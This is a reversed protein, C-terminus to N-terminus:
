LDLTSPAFIEEPRVIRPTLGQENLYQAITEVVVRAARLGYALPDNGLTRRVNDGLLGTEFYATLMAHGCRNAEDKAAAFASYLNLAVWPYREVLSRRVVVAHNIPYIGTKAFYRRAEAEPDPFLTRIGAVTSLDIRSRDVLNRDTLYLLTADLEGRVLM